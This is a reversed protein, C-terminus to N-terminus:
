VFRFSPDLFQLALGVLVNDNGQGAVLEIQDGLVGVLACYGSGVGLLVGPLGAQQEEFGRGLGGLIHPFQEGGDCLLQREILSTGAVDPGARTRADIQPGLCGAALAGSAAVALRNEEEDRM